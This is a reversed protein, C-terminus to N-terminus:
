TLGCLMFVLSQGAEQEECASARLFSSFHFSGNPKDGACASSEALCESLCREIMAAADRCTGAFRFHYLCGEPFGLLKQGYLEVHGVLGFDFFGYSLYNLFETADIDQHVIRTVPDESREFLGGVLLSAGDEVCVYEAHHINGARYQGM